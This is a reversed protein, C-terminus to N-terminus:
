NIQQIDTEELNNEEENITELEEIKEETENVVKHKVTSINKTGSLMDYFFTEKKFFIDFFTKIYIMILMVYILISILSFTEEDMRNSSWNIIDYIKYFIVYMIIYRFLLQYIKPKEGNKNTIKIKVFSKGITRGNFIIVSILFYFLMFLSYLETRLDIHLLLVLLIVIINFVVVDILFALIRRSFSVKRGKEYATEDLRDRTPLFLSFIPTLIHGLLGGFTNIILDDVDFLRYPRPYIGYLSSIQTIEFFLSLVFSMIIVEWWKRKFYYRLYIGFPITLVLNFLNTYILPEKLATLYTSFDDIVLSSYMSIEKIFNFPILQIWEKDLALVEKFTPLPLIVMFYATLLYLVFSYVIVTRLFPISGYRHYQRIMYPLTILFAIIPFTVFAVRIAIEYTQM